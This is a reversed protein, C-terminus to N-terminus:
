SAEKTTMTTAVVTATMKTLVKALVGVRKYDSRKLAKELELMVRQAQGPVDRRKELTPDDCTFLDSGSLYWEEGSYFALWMSNMNTFVTARMLRGNRRFYKVDGNRLPVKDRDRNYGGNDYESVVPWGTADRNFRSATWGRNFSALPDNGDRKAECIRLISLNLQALDLQSDEKPMYGLALTSKVIAGMEVVCQRQVFASMRKFKDFGYRGGYANPGLGNIVATSGEGHFEVSARRGGTDIVAHLDGKNAVWHYDSLIPYQQSTRPDRMVHWGRAVLGKLISAMVWQIGREDLVGNHREEWVSVRTLTVHVEGVRPLTISSAEIDM